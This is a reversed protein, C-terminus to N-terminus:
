FINRFIGWAIILGTMGWVVIPHYFIRRVKGPKFDAWVGFPIIPLFCLLLANSHWARAFEGHLLAHAMRQAGCGPCDWGTLTHFLCKPMWRGSPDCFYYLVGVSVAAICVWFWLRRQM